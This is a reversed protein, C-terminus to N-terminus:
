ELDQSEVPPNGKNRKIRIIKADKDKGNGAEM